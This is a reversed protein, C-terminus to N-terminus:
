TQLKRVVAEYEAALGSSKYAFVELHEIARTCGVYFSARGRVDTLFENASAILTVFADYGKASAITSVTLQGRGCM